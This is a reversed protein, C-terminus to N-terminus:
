AKGFAFADKRACKVDVYANVILNVTGASLSATDRVVDLQVNDWAGIICNSFDGYIANISVDNLHGTSLVPTGDIEGSELAL